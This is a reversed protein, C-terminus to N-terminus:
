GPEAWAVNALPFFTLSKVSFLMYIYIYIGLDLATGDNEGYYTVLKTTYRLGMQLM